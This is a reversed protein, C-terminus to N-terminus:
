QLMNTSSQRYLLVPVQHSLAILITLAEKSRKISFMKIRKEAWWVRQWGQCM